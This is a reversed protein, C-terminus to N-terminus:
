SPRYMPPHHIFLYLFISLYKTRNFLYQINCGIWVYTQEM